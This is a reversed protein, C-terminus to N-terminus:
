ASRDTKVGSSGGAGAGPGGAESRARDGRGAWEGPYRRPPLPTAGGWAEPEVFALSNRKKKKFSM